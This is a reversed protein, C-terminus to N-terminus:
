KGKLFDDITTFLFAPDDFMIFHKAKEDLLVKHNPIGAVQAEYREQVTKRMEPSTVMSGSGILLVPTKIAAVDKRLDTTMLEYVYQGVAKPDSKACTPAILNVNKPDTIMTSLFSRNQEAFQESTQGEMMGRMMEGTAKPDFMAALFTGGDVSIIPGVLDPEKAGLWFALFGGLSHGIVIPHTLKRSQIYGAMDKRVTELMPTGIPPQGAFGALTFVHCEYHDKFHEVTTKWVDGGCTLGPILVMPKGHGVVEVVFSNTTPPKAAKATAIGSTQEQGFTCCSLFGIVFVSRWHNM